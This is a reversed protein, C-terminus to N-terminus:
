TERRQEGEVDPAPSQECKVCIAGSAAISRTWSRM